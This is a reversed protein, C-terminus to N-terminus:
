PQPDAIPCGNLMTSQGPLQVLATASRITKQAHV